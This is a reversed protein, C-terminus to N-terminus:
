CHAFWPSEHLAQAAAPGIPNDRLDLDTLRALSPSAALAQTGEDGLINYGLNLHVLNALHPSNALAAVVEPGLNNVGVDLNTLNALRLSGVLARVGEEGVGAAFLRLHTLRSLLATATLETHQDVGGPFVLERLDVAAFLTEGHERLIAGDVQVRELLGRVFNGPAAWDVGPVEPLGQLWRARNKALLEMEREREGTSRWWERPGNGVQLRIFEARDGEGHDDLFDALV